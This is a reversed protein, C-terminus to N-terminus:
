YALRKETSLPVRALVDAIRPGAKGDGYIGQSPVRRRPVLRRVAAVIAARDYDIDVVNAGRDRGAQRNGINVAPIGLAECERIAVSSNGVIGCSGDLVRLFTEPPLNKFFHVHPLDHRERFARIGRSTGDSGADVNPWFWLAPIGCELIAELTEEVDQRARAYETTVPHQMVVIYPEALDLRAGVGGHIEFLEEFNVPERDFDLALDISPCGTVFVREEVEGMRVVRVAAQDSAVLHYDALKTVAHRVKEDISGTIEGGQVHALPIHMYSSAVATAMTEFRDAITIVIDPRLDDFVTAMEALGFGVSKASTILNEGEMVMYVRRDIKFGDREIVDCASGYRELLASAAVILQLELDPHARIAHLASRIRSYSPRATVVVCIKRPM